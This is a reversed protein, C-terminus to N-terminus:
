ALPFRLPKVVVPHATKAVPWGGGFGDQPIPTRGLGVQEPPGVGLHHANPALTGPNRGDGHLVLTLGGLHSQIDQNIATIPAIEKGQGINGIAKTPLGPLQPSLGAGRGQRLEFGIRKELGLHHM